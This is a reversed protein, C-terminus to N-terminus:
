MRACECAHFVFWARREIHQQGNIAANHGHVNANANAIAQSGVHVTNSEGVGDLVQEDEQLLRNYQQQHKPEQQAIAVNDQTLTSLNASPGLGTSAPMSSNSSAIVSWYRQTNQNLSTRLLWWASTEAAYKRVSHAIVNQFDCYCNVNFRKTLSVFFGFSATNQLQAITNRAFRCVVCRTLSAHIAGCRQMCKLFVFPCSSALNRQKALSTTARNYERKDSVFFNM